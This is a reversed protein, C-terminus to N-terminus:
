VWVGDCHHGIQLTLRHIIRRYINELADRDALNLSVQKLLIQVRVIESRARPTAENEVHPLKGFPEGSGIAFREGDRPDGGSVDAIESIMKPPITSLGHRGDVAIQDGNAPEESPQGFMAM